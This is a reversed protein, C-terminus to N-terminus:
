EKPIPTGTFLKETYADLDNNLWTDLIVDRGIEVIQNGQLYGCCHLFKTVNGLINSLEDSEFKQTLNFPGFGAVDDDECVLKFRSM